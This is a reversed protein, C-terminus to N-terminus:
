EIMINQWPIQGEATTFYRALFDRQSRSAQTTHLSSAQSFQSLQVEQRWGGPIIEHNEPNERDFDTLRIRTRLLNHMCCAAM